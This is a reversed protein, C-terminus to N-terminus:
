AQSDQSSNHIKQMLEDFNIGAFLEFSKLQVADPRKEPDKQLCEEIFSVGSKLFLIEDEPYWEIDASTIKSFLVEINDSDDSFPLAGCIFYFYCVGLAWVDIKSSQNPLQQIVEPSLFAATGLIRKQFNSDVSTDIKSATLSSDPPNTHDSNKSVNIQNNRPPSFCEFITPNIEVNKSVPPINPMPIECLIKENHKKKIVSSDIVSNLSEKDLFTQDNTDDRFSCFNDSESKLAMSSDNEKDNQQQSTNVAITSMLCNQIAKNKIPQLLSTIQRPTRVIKKAKRDPTYIIDNVSLQHDIEVISLGFDILKIFGNPALLINSPKLDRHVIGRKHIYILALIMQSAFHTARAREIHGNQNILAQLDLSPCVYEMILYVSDDSQLCYYISVILPSKSIAMADKEKSIQSILNKNIYKEIPLKKIAFKKSPNDKRSGIFIDGYSGKSLLQEFNFDSIDM